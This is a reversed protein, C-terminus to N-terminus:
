RRFLRRAFSRKGRRATEQAVDCENLVVGLRREQPVLDTAESLRQHPTRGARAVLVCGDALAALQQAEASDCLAPADIVVLDFRAALQALLKEFRSSVLAEDLTGDVAGAEEAAGRGKMVYLGNPDIRVM